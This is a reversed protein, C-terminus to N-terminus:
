ATELYKILMKKYVELTSVSPLSGITRVHEKILRKQALSMLLEVCTNGIEDAKIDVRISGDSIGKEIISTMLANHIANSARIKEYVELPLQEKECSSIFADFQEMFVLM